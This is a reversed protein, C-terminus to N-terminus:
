TCENSGRWCPANVACWCTKACLRGTASRPSFQGPRQTRHRAHTWALAATVPPVLMVMVVVVLAAAVFGVVVALLVVDCSSLSGDRSQAAPHVRAAAAEPVTFRQQDM